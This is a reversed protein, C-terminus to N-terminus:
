KISDQYAKIRDVNINLNSIEITLKRISLSFKEPKRKESANKVEILM